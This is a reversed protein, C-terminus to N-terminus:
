NRASQVEYHIQVMGNDFTETLKHILRTKPINQFLPVGRGLLIPVQTLIIEHIQNESLFSQITRGGDIYLNKFGQVHINKLIQEIPGRVVEVKKELSNPIQSLTNSWVFVKKSYPWEIGFSLVKEFTKRGMFIADVSEIFKSYGGDGVVPNPLETLWDIGGDEDAIYGDLSTAIFVKNRM